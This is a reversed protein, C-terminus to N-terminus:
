INELSEAGNIKIGDSLNYCSFLRNMEKYRKIAQELQIRSADFILNTLAVGGYNAPREM